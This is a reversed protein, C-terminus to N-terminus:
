PRGAARTHDLYVYSAVKPKAQRTFPFEFQVFGGDAPYTVNTYNGNLTGNVWWRMVGDSGGPTSPYRLYEEVFYWQGPWVPTNSVNPHWMGRDAYSYGYPPWGVVRAIEYPPPEGPGLLTYSYQGRQTWTFSVKAGQERVDWPEGWKIWYAVYLERWSHPRALVLWHNGPGSDRPMSTPFVVRLVSSPSRPATRDVQIDSSGSHAQYRWGNCGICDWGQENILILGPPENTPTSGEASVTVTATGTRGETTATIMATGAAVAFVLGSESVTAVSPDSSSWTVADDPLPEGHEDKPLATLQAMQGVLITPTVPSVEVSRASALVRTLATYAKECGVALTLVIVVASCLLLHPRRWKTTGAYRADRRYPVAKEPLRDLRVLGEHLL